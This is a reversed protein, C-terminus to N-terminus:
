GVLLKKKERKPKRLIIVINDRKSKKRRRMKESAQESMGTPVSAVQRFFFISHFFIRIRTTGFIM